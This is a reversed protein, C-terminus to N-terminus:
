KMIDPWNLPPAINDLNKYRLLKNKLNKKVVQMFYDLM